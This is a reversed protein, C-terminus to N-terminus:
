MCFSQRNKDFPGFGPETLARQFRLEMQLRKSRVFNPMRRCGESSPRRASNRLDHSIRNLDRNSTCKPKRVQGRAMLVRLLNRRQEVAGGAHSTRTIFVRDSSALGERNRPVASPARPWVLTLFPPPQQVNLPLTIDHGRRMEKSEPSPATDSPARPRSGKAFRTRTLTRASSFWRAFRSSPHERKTVCRRAHCMGCRRAHCMARSSMVCAVCSKVFSTPASAEVCSM